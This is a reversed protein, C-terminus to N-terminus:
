LPTRANNIDLIISSALPFSPQRNINSNTKARPVQVKSPDYRIFLLKKRKNEVKYVVEGGQKKPFEIDCGCIITEPVHKPFTVEVAIQNETLWNHLERPQLLL